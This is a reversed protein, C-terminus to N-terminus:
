KKGRLGFYAGLWWAANAAGFFIWDMLLPKRNHKPWYYIIAIDIAAVAVSMVAVVVTLASWKKKM